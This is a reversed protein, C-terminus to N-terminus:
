FKHTTKLHSRKMHNVQDLLSDMCIFRCVNWASPSTHPNTVANQRTPEVTITTSVETRKFADNSMSFLCLARLQRKSPYITETQLKNARITRLYWKAVHKGGNIHRESPAIFILQDDRGACHLLCWVFFSNTSFRFALLTLISWDRALYHTKIHM